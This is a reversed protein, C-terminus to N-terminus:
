CRARDSFRSPACSAARRGIVSGAGAVALTRYALMRLLHGRDAGRLRLSAQERRQAAALVSGCLRGSRGGAPRPSASSCSCGSASRPMASRWSSRTRSTTSSTTRAPRSGGSRAPSRAPRRSRRPPIRTCGGGSSACTSRRSPCARSSGASSRARPACRRCSRAPSSPLPSSSRRRCTCSPESAARARSSFLPRARTLDAVGSVPLRLAGGRRSACRSRDVRGSQSRARPRPVSCRASGRRVIRRRSPDVPLPRPLALRVRVRARPQARCRRAGQLTGAPLDVFALGDASAVGPISAIRARVQELTLHRPGNAAAPVLSERSSVRGGLRLERARVSRVARARYTIAVTAGPAVTGINRGLGAVGQSLPSGGGVDGLRAGNLTASGPVYRLPRPAEDQVVVDHAPEAGDNSLRLTVTVQEGAAISGAAGVQERLRLGSGLPSTLVRQM